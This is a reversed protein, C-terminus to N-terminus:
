ANALRQMTALVFRNAWSPEGLRELFGTHGGHQTVHVELRPSPALRALDRAPIIPDDQSTLIVAPAALQALRDGTIAYGQLYDDIHAYTTHRAVLAATMQRLDRCRLLSRFDHDQPWTAQKRLLSRSWKWVFYRRYLPM